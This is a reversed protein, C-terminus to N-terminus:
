NTILPPPGLVHHSPAMGPSTTRPEIFFCASCAMIFLGTLLVGGHGRCWSRGGPEQRWQKQRHVKIHFDTHFLSWKDGCQKQYNTNQWLLLLELWSLISYWVDNNLLSFSGNSLARFVGSVKFVLCLFILGLGVLFRKGQQRPWMTVFSVM